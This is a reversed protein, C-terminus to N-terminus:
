RQVNIRMLESGIQFLTLRANRSIIFLLVQKITKKEGRQNEPNQGRTLGKTPFTPSTGRIAPRPTPPRSKELLYAM